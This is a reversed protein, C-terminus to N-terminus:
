KKMQRNIWAIGKIDDENVPATKGTLRHHWQLGSRDDGIIEINRTTKKWLAKVEDLTLPRATM